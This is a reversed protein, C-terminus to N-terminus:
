ANVSVTTPDVLEVSQSRIGRFYRSEQNGGLDIVSFSGDGAMKFVVFLADAARGKAAKKFRVVAGIRVKVDTMLSSQELPTLPRTDTISARPINYNMDTVKGDVVKRGKVNVHGRCSDVLYEGQWTKAVLGPYLSYSM